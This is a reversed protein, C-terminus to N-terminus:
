RKALRELSNGAEVFYIGSPLDAVSIQTKLSSAPILVEKVRKLDASYINILELAENKWEVIVDESVPNPYLSFESNERKEIGVNHDSLKSVGTSTAVWVNNQTVEIGNM